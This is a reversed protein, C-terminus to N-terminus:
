RRQQTKTLQLWSMGAPAQDHADLPEHCIETQKSEAVNNTMQKFTDNAYGYMGVVGCFDIVSHIFSTLTRTPPLHLIAAVLRASSSFPKLLFWCTYCSCRRQDSNGQRTIISTESRPGPGGCPTKSVRRGHSCKALSTRKSTRALLKANEMKALTSTEIAGECM